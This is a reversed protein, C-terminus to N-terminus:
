QLDLNYERIRNKTFSNKSIEYDYCAVTKIQNKFGSRELINKTSAIYYNDEEESYWLPRKENRFFNMKPSNQLDIVISAISSEKYKEIPHQSDEWSRLVLESDNKTNCKYGFLQHWTEPNEQTIVGNHVIAVKDSFMPQNYNLDSTSYRNHGIMMDTKIEPLDLFNAPEPIIKYNIKGNDNWAIGTAHKGRIMSQMLLSYFKKTDVVTESFVGIVGCM